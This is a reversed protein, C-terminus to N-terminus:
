GKPRFADVFTSGQNEPKSASWGVLSTPAAANPAWNPHLKALRRAAEVALDTSYDGNEDRLDDVNVGACWLDGPTLLVGAIDREAAARDHADVREQLRDRQAEVTRLQERYREDSRPRRREARTTDPEDSPEPEPEPETAPQEVDPADPVADTDLETTDPTPETM